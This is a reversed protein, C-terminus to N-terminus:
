VRIEDDEEDEEFSFSAGDEEDDEEQHLSPSRARSGEGAETRAEAAWHGPVDRALGPSALGPPHGTEMIGLVDGLMSPGLDVHFSLVSEAHRMGEPPPPAEAVPSVERPPRDASTPGAEEAEVQEEPLARLRGEQEQSGEVGRGDGEDAKSPGHKSLFSTDGFADGGRGVHMTHRFDGLPASIMERTLDLRSRRKAHPGNPVLQKLIPM